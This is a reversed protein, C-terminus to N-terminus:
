FLLLLFYLEINLFIFIAFSFYSTFHDLNTSGIVKNKKPQYAAAQSGSQQAALKV